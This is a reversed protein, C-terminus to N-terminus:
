VYPSDVTIVCNIDAYRKQVQGSIESRLEDDSLQCSFPKLVDFILNSHMEGPVIRVDHIKMDADITSIIENVASKLEALRENKVDVPDSHIVVHCNFKAAIEVEVDDILEHAQFVDLDGPVEAHLSIMLRGPGYDHVVIDHVGCIPKHKMVEDEISKVFEPEPAAGLLPALTEKVSSIGGYLIFVSVVVGAIGDVPISVKAYRATLFAAIVVSTAIADNQSDLATARLTASDIKKSLYLNYFMMYLKVLIAACMIVIAVNSIEVPEPHIISQVSSKFLEVGMLLVLFSIILGSVYEMRGHGYPHEPDPKKSSLKFGLLEIISSGADALNNFADAIIAVSGVITGTVFKGAFLILNLFIGLGGCLVGYQQRVAPNSYDEPNKIFLKALLKIM